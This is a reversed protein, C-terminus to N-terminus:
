NTWNMWRMLNAVSDGTAPQVQCSWCDLHLVRYVDLRHRTKRLPATGRTALFGLNRQSLPFRLNKWVDIKFKCTWFRYRTATFANWPSDGRCSRDINGSIFVQRKLEEIISSGSSVSDSPIAYKKSPLSEWFSSCSWLLKLLSIWLRMEYSKSVRWPPIDLFNAIQVFM